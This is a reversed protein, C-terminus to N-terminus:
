QDYEAQRKQYEAEHVDCLTRIWGGSRQTGPAGCHECTRASMSEAMSVMAGIYEDGGDYYFRLTGFKEKVQAAVVQPVVDKIQQFEAEMVRKQYSERINEPTNKYWEDFKTWDGAMADSKMTNFKIAMERDRAVRDIYGQINGCLTDIINYWGDGHEFGWCMATESVSGHRKAFILPYKECLQKDLKENM